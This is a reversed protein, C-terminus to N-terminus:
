KESPAAEEPKNDLYKWFEFYKDYQEKIFMFIKNEKKGEIPELHDKNKTTIEDTKITEGPFYPFPIGGNYRYIEFRGVSKVYSFSTHQRVAPRNMSRFYDYGKADDGETASDDNKFFEEGPDKHVVVYGQYPFFGKRILTSLSYGYQHFDDLWICAKSIYGPTFPINSIRDIYYVETPKMLANLEAFLDLYSNYLYKLTSYGKEPDKEILALKENISMDWSIGEYTMSAFNYEPQLRRLSHRLTKKAVDEPIIYKFDFSRNMTYNWVNIPIEKLYFIGLSIILILAAGLIIWISFLFRLKKQFYKILNNFYLPVNKYHYAYFFSSIHVKKISLYFRIISKKIKNFEGSISITKIKKAANIFVKNISDTIRQLPIRVFQLVLKEFAGFGISAIIILPVVAGIIYRPLKHPIATVGMLYISAALILSVLIIGYYLIGSVFGKPFSVLHLLPTKRKNENLAIQKFGWSVALIVVAIISLLAGIKMLPGVEVWINRIYYGPDDAPYNNVASRAANFPQLPNRYLLGSFALFPLTGFVFGALSKALEGTLQYNKRKFPNFYTALIFFPAPFAILITTFRTFAGIGIFFGGLLASLRWRDSYLLFLYGAAIFVLSPIGTMFFKGWYNLIPTGIWFASAVVGGTIGGLKHGIFFFILTGMTLFLARFIHLFEVDTSFKMPLSLFYSWYIARSHFEHYVPPIAKGPILYDKFLTVPSFLRFYKAMSIYSCEDYYHYLKIPYLWAKFSFAFIAQILVFLIIVYILKTLLEIWHSTIYDAGQKLRLLFSVIIKNYIKKIM